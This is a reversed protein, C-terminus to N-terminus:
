KRKRDGGKGSGFSRGGGGKSDSYSSNRRGGGGEGFSKRAGGGFSGPGRKSGGGGFGSRGGSNGGGSRGGRGKSGGNGKDATVEVSIHHGEFVAGNVHKLIRETFEEDADFFSFSAMLDIRGINSSKLGTADCVVRLLAGPNLGDRRGVNVFFRTKGEDRAQDGKSAPREKREDKKAAANLDGAREYYDIFRNFEASVFKKIVEEKSLSEFSDLIQPMFKQIDAEKVETAITKNILKMLQIECIEEANPIIGKRFTTRMQKEIATIKFMERSNVLVLSEGKKGARATRGSRHTYNEIDDPLNYNIVHTINDIDLGRAAVDTAVLIQLEKSRFREMVRDRMAQTLDGHLPEANYGEKALKEAVAATENKTRCFILGYISPNFDILRKVAEYRDREKVAYYIHDINENSQNKHGISVELPNDMYNKAIFAVEKPMTASFLWVNKDIPTTELIADIDEKFGMNLMEDAEDLIVYNVENLVVVKRNILDVLRGPTAVIIAAGKKVDTMQRRIDTGGYVPVINCDLYKSFVELDKTIQLCLERTPCIILGQPLKAKTNINNILPLGFAATKGTGTQALGVFDCDEKLLHPIAQEQIPTPAEFGLETLSKLVEKRLGLEEFTM